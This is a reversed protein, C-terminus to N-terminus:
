TRPMGIFLYKEFPIKQIQLSDLKCGDQTGLFEINLTIPKNWELLKNDNELLRPDSYRCANTVRSDKQPKIENVTNVRMVPCIGMPKGDEYYFRSFFGKERELENLVQTPILIGWRIPRSDGELELKLVRANCPTTVRSKGFTSSEDYGKTWSGQSVADLKYGALWVACGNLLFFAILLIMKQCHKM